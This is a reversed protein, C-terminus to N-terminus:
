LCVYSKIHIEGEVADESDRFTKTESFDPGMQDWACVERDICEETCRIRLWTNLDRSLPRIINMLSFNM